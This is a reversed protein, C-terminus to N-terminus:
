ETGGQCIDKYVCANECAYNITPYFIEQNIAKIVKILTSIARLISNLPVDLAFSQIYPEDKLKVVNDLCIQKNDTIGHVAVLQLQTLFNSQVNFQTLKKRSTKINLLGRPTVFDIRTSVKTRGPEDIMSLDEMGAWYEIVKDVKIIQLDALRTELYLKLYKLGDKELQNPNKDKFDVEIPESHDWTEPNWFHHYFTEKADGSNTLIAQKIARNFCAGLHTTGSTKTRVKAVYKLYFFNPCRVYDALQTAKFETPIRM